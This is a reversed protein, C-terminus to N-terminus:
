ETQRGVKEWGERENERERERERERDAEREQGGGLESENTIIISRQLM